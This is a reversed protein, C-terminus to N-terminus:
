ATRGLNKGSDVARAAGLGRGTRRGVKLVAEQGQEHRLDLILVREIREVVSLDSGLQGLQIRDVTDLLQILRQGM